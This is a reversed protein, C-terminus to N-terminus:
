ESGRGRRRQSSPPSPNGDLLRELQEYARHLTEADDPRRERRTPTAASSLAELVRDQMSTVATLVPLMRMLLEDYSKQLARREKTCDWLLYFLVASLGGLGGGVAPLTGNADAALLLSFWM